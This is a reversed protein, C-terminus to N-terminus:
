FLKCQRAAGACLDLRVEVRAVEHKVRRALLQAFCLSTAVLARCTKLAGQIRLTQLATHAGAFERARNVVRSQQCVFELLRARLLRHERAKDLM